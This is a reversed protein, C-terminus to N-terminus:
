DLDLSENNQHGGHIHRQLTKNWSSQPYDHAYITALQTEYLPNDALHAYLMLRKIGLPGKALHWYEYLYPYLNIWQKAPSHTLTMNLFLYELGAHATWPNDIAIAVKEIFRPSSPEDDFISRVNTQITIYQYATLMMYLSPILYLLSSTRKNTKPPTESLQQAPFLAALYFAFLALFFGQLLSISILGHLLLLLVIVASSFAPHDIPHQTNFIHYVRKLIIACLLLICLGGFIGGEAFFQIIINHSWLIAGDMETWHPHAKLSQAQFDPFYSSINGAGVGFWPHELLMLMSSYWINLRATIGSEYIRSGLPSTTLSEPLYIQWQIAIAIGCLLVPIIHWLFTRKRPTCLFLLFCLGAMLLFAGRSNSIFIIASPLISALLWCKDWANRISQIWLSAIVILLFLTALNRQLLPGVFDPFYVWLFLVPHQPEHILQFAQLVGWFAYINGSIALLAIWATHSIFAQASSQSMRFILFVSAMYISFTVLGWPNPAERQLLHVCVPILFLAFLLWSKSPESTTPSQIHMWVAVCLAVGLTLLNNAVWYDELCFSFFPTIFFM